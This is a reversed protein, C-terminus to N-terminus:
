PTETAVPMYPIYCDGRVWYDHSVTDENRIRVRYFIVGNDEGSLAAELWVDRRLALQGSTLATSTGDSPWLHANDHVDVWTSVRFTSVLKASGQLQFKFNVNRAEGPGLTYPGRVNGDSSLFRMVDSAIPQPTTLALVQRELDAIRNILRKEMTDETPNVSM